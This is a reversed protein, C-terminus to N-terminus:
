PTILPTSHAECDRSFDFLDGGVAVNAHTSDVEAAHDFVDAEVVDGLDCYAVIRNDVNPKREGLDILLAGKFSEFEEPLHTCQVLFQGALFLLKRPRRLSRM